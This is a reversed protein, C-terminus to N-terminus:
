WSQRIFPRVKLIPPINQTKKNIAKPCISFATIFHSSSCFQTWIWCHLSFFRYTGTRTPLPLCLVPKWDTVHLSCIQLYPLWFHKKLKQIAIVHFKVFFFFSFIYSISLSVESESLHWKQRIGDSLGVIDSPCIYLFTFTSLFYDLSLSLIKKLKVLWLLHSMLSHIGFYQWRQRQCARRWEISERLRKM